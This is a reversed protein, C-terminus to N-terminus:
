QGLRCQQEALAYEEKENTALVIVARTRIEDILERVVRKGDDDLNSTPEDLFLFDPAGSLAIAYQLRQIMGSSYTGLRDDGRGELGVRTLWQNVEKGTVNFGRMTAFFRLNEEGTLQSYLSLYPAVFATRCRFDDPNLPHDDALYEAAGSDPRYLGLLCKILTSKGSGNPGTVALSQGAELDLNIDSFVTRTGFRKSMNQAMLRHM